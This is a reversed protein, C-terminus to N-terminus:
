GQETEAQTSLCELRDSSDKVNRLHHCVKRFRSIDRHLKWRWITCLCCCLLNMINELYHLFQTILVCWLRRGSPLLYIVTFVLHIWLFSHATNISEPPLLRTGFMDNFRPTELYLQMSYVYSPLFHLLSALLMIEAYFFLSVKAGFSGTHRGYLIAISFILTGCGYRDEFNWIHRPSLFFTTVVCIFYFLAQALRENIHLHIKYCHHALIFADLVALDQPEFFIHDPLAFLDELRLKESTPLYHSIIRSPDGFIQTLMYTSFHQLVWIKKILIQLFHSSTSTM